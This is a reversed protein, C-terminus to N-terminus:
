LCPVTLSLDFAPTSDYAPVFTTASESSPTLCVCVCHSLMARMQKTHRVSHRPRRKRVSKDVRKRRRAKGRVRGKSRFEAEFKQRRADSEAGAESKAGAESEAGAAVRAM